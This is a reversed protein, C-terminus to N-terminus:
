DNVNIATTQTPYCLGNDACGQYSVQIEAPSDENTAMEARHYYVGVQGFYPDSKRLAPSEDFQASIDELKGERMAEVKLSHHYLYYGPAIHWQLKLEGDKQEGSLIFAQEVPLFEPEKDQVDADQFGSSLLGSGFNDLRSESSGQLLPEANLAFPVVVLSSIVFNKLVLGTTWSATASPLIPSHLLPLQM